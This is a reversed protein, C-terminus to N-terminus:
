QEDKPPAQKRIVQGFAGHTIKLGRSPDTKRVENEAIVAARANGITGASQGGFLEAWMHGLLEHATAEPLNAGPIGGIQGGILGRTDQDFPAPNPAVVVFPESYGLSPTGAFGGPTVFGQGGHGKYTPSISFQANIKTEVLDALKAANPSLARFSEIDGRIKIFTKQETRIGFIRKYWPAQVIKTETTVRAAAEKSGTAAGIAQVCKEKETCQTVEVTNGTPDAYKLPNNLTYAYLNWSQPNHSSSNATSDLSLFRGLMSAFYRAIFYDLGTEPDRERGTFKYANGSGGAVAREGGFPHRVGQPTGASSGAGSAVAREGGFPYYDSEDLIAGTANMVVCARGLPYHDSDDLITDAADTVIRASGLHDAFYYFVVGSAERWAIRKGGFFM